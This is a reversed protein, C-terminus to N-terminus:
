HIPLQSDLSQMETSTLIRGKYVALYAIKGNTSGAIFWPISANGILFPKNTANAYGITGGGTISTYKSQEQGDIFLHAAAATGVTGDWTFAVQVWAGTPVVSGYSQVQMDVVSRVVTLEIAGSSTMGFAFGSNADGDNKECFGGQTLSNIYVKAVVTMQNPTLDDFILDTGANLYSNLSSGGNFLISPDTTNWTPLSTGSFSATGSDVLNADTTGNGENMIFLGVLDTALPSSTNLSSGTSRSPPGAFSYLQVTNTGVYTTEHQLWITYLGTTPLSQVASFNTSSNYITFDTLITGTPGVLNFEGLYTSSSSNWVRVQQGATGSFTLRVDQGPVTTTESVASGNATIAGTLDTPNYLTISISGTSSGPDIGVTYTGTIPLVTDDVYTASSASCGGTKLQSGNPAIIYLNCNSFTSGSLGLFLKQGASADFLVLGIKSAVSLSVSVTSGLTTRSTYAIDGVAHTGFPIYLDQASVATGLSTVVSIHGSAMASPVTTGINTATASGAFQQAQNFVLRDNAATTDFNTGTITIATGAIASTPSFSTITPGSATTITFNKATTFSGAPSTVQITGSTAGSPVTVIIANATASSITASTGNFSVSDLSTSPSFGTGSITVTTGVPGNAPSFNLVSIQAASYRNIALLNGVADYSYGAANGSPDIVGTLRGLDDYIYIVGSQARAAEINTGQVLAVLVLLAFSRQWTRM